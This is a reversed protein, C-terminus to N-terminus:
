GAVATELKMVHNLKARIHYTSLCVAAHAYSITPSQPLTSNDRVTGTATVITYIEILCQICVRSLRVAIRCLQNHAAPLLRLYVSMIRAFVWGLRELM